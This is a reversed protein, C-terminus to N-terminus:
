LFKCPHCKASITIGRSVPCITGLARFCIGVSGFQHTAWNSAARPELVDSCYNSFILETLKYNRMNSKVYSPFHLNTEINVETMTPFFIGLGM